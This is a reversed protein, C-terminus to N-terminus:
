LYNQALALAVKEIPCCVRIGRMRHLEDAYTAVLRAVEAAIPSNSVAEDLSAWVQEETLAGYFVHQNCEPRINMAASTAYSLGQVSTGDATSIKSM